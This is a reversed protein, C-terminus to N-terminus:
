SWSSWSDTHFEANDTFNVTLSLPFKDFVSPNSPSRGVIFGPTSKRTRPRNVYWNSRTKPRTSNGKPVRLRVLSEIDHLNYIWSTVRLRFYYQIMLLTRPIWFSTMPRDQSSCFKVHRVFLGKSKTEYRFYDGYKLLDKRMIWTYLIFM